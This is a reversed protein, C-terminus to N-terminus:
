RCLGLARCASLDDPGFKRDTGWNVSAHMTNGNKMEPDVHGFGFVHGFEHQVVIRFAETFPEGLRAVYQDSYLSIRDALMVVVTRDHTFALVSENVMGFSSERVIYHVGPVPLDTAFNHDYAAECTARGSSFTDWNRCATSIDARESPTFDVDAHFVVHQSPTHTVTPSPKDPADPPPSVTAVCSILAFL